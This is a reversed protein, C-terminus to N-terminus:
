EIGTNEDDLSQVRVVRGTRDHYIVANGHREAYGDPVGGPTRFLIRQAEPQEIVKDGAPRYRFQSFDAHAKPLSSVRALEHMNPKKKEGEDDQAHAIAPFVAMASLALLAKKNGSQRFM